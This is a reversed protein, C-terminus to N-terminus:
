LFPLAVFSFTLPLMWPERRTNNTAILRKAVVSCAGDDLLIKPAFVEFPPDKLLPVFVEHWGQPCSIVVRLTSPLRHCQKSISRCRLLRSLFVKWSFLFRAFTIRTSSVQYYRIRSSHACVTWKFFGRSLKNSGADGNNTEDEEHGQDRGVAALDLSYYNMM